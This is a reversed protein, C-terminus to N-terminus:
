KSNFILYNLKNHKKAKNILNQNIIEGKKILLENNFGFIDCTATKNLIMSPNLSIKTPRSIEISPSIEMAKVKPLNEQEVKFPNDGRQKNKKNSFIIYQESVSLIHKPLIEGKTTVIKVVKDKATIISQVRGLDIGDYGYVIKGLPNTRAEDFYSQCERENLVFFCEDNEATVSKYPLFVERESEEDALIYGKFTKLDASFVIDLVYGIMQASELAIVKKGFVNELEKM